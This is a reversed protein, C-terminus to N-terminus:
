AELYLLRSVIQSRRVAAITRNLKDLDRRTTFQIGVAPLMPMDRFQVIADMKYIADDSAKYHVLLNTNSRLGWRLKSEQRLGYSLRSASHRLPSPFRWDRRTIPKTQSHM